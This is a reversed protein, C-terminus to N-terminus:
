RERAVSRRLAAAALASVAAFLAGVALLPLLLAPLRPLRPLPWHPTSQFVPLDAGTVWWAVAAAVLGCAVAALVVVLYGWLGARSSVRRRLGQVRLAALDETRRRRDVGAVLGIGGTALIVAFAAALLHFWLALAPGQGDLETHLRSITQDRVVILGHEALLQNVNAPAASGLWVQAGAAFGSDAAVRDAYELDVYTGSEGLGPLGTVRGVQHVAVASGLGAITADGALKATSVVPLPYPADNPKLWSEAPLGSTNDLVMTLGGSDGTLRASSTSIWNAAQGFQATSVAPRGDVTVSHLALSVHYGGLSSTTLASFNVLRCGARCEPISYLYTHEGEILNGFDATVSGSGDVPALSLVLRLGDRRDFDSTTADVSVTGGTIVVTDPSAPHLRDAVQKASLGGFDARWDAVTALRSSQVALKAPEDPGGESLPVVAMAYRGAPDLQQVAQLLQLRTVTDVTVVRTAGTAIQAENARAHAAVDTATAAFTLLAVAVTLLVLLRQAGPRRALQLAALGTGTRGRLLAGRGYRAALPVVARGAVLAIALIVLGPVLLAVGTLAGGSTRLQVAAVVALIIVTVEVALAQWAPAPRVVRRLLSSVPTALGRRQALLACLLAGLGAAVAYKWGATSLLTASATGLRARALLAVTLQGILFGGASGLVIPVVNEGLALWWRSPLRTGRLALLGLEFRRAEAGYGVALFIVFWALLVLPVAAIPVVQHALHQGAHIRNILDPISSEYTAQSGLQALGDSVNTVQTNVTDLRDPSLTGPDAFTDISILQRLHDLHDFTYQSTFIPETPVGNPGLAFYGHTGWYLESPDRARYTGVVTLETPVGVPNYVPHTPDTIEAYTILLVTGPTIHRRKATTDGILIEGEGALCRGTVMVLHECAGQRYDMNTESHEGAELGLIVYNEGFVPTFGPVNTLSYLADALNVGRADLM